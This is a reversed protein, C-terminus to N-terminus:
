GGPFPAPARRRPTLAGVLAAAAAEADKLHPRLDIPVRPGLLRPPPADDLRVPVLQASAGTPDLDYAASWAGLLRPEALTHKSMLLLVRDAGLQGDQYLVRNGGTAVGWAEVLVEFGAQELQDAMWLAWNADARAYLVAVTKARPTPTSPPPAAMAEALRRVQAVTETPDDGTRWLQPMMRELGYPAVEPPADGRYIPLVRHGGQQALGIARVLDDSAYWDAAADPEILAATVRTDRQIHHLQDWLDGPLLAVRGKVTLGDAQLARYLTRMDADLTPPASLFVPAPTM